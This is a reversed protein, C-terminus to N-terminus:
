GVFPIMFGRKSKYESYEKFHKALIKEELLARMILFPIEILAIIIVVYSLTAVGAALDMLIQSLYQPHRILKFPGSTVIKHDKLILIDQSYNEGLTKYAWIQIWSFIIYVAFGSLRLSEFEDTYELTGIQFLGLIIAVLSLASLVLPLKQLYTKPKEKHVTLKEKLGRKAGSMNASFTALINLGVFINIPDM